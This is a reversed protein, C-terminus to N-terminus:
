QLNKSYVIVQWLFLRKYFVRHLGYGALISEIEHTAHIFARYPNRTLWLFANVVRIGARTWWTDPPLVIGYLRKALAASASVLARMDHYCCLVRDLTVIDSPEVQPSIAVFDGHHHRIREAFGLREAEEKSARLYAASADVATARDAGAELLDFQIAGVGGGIDLLSSGEIGQEKLADILLITTEAPGEERYAELEEKVAEENFVKEIGECQCCNM